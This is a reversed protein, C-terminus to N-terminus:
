TQPDQRTIPTKQPSPKLNSQRLASLEERGVQEFNGDDEHNDKEVELLAPSSPLNPMHPDKKPTTTDAGLFILFAYEPAM